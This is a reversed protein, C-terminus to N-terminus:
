VSFPSMQTKKVLINKQVLVLVLHNTKDVVLGFLDLGVGIVTLHDECVIKKALFSKGPSM